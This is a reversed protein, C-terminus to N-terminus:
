IAPAGYATATVPPAPLGLEVYLDVAELQQARTLKSWGPAILEALRARKQDVPTPPRAVIARRTKDWIESAGPQHDVPIAGLEAPLPDAVETGFSLAEGTAKDIVAYWQM